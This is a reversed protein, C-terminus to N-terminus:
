LSSPEFRKLVIVRPMMTYAIRYYTRCKHCSTLGAIVGGDCEPNYYATIAGPEKCVPCVLKEVEWHGYPSAPGFLINIQDYTLRDARKKIPVM